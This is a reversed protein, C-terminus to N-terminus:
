SKRHVKIYCDSMISELEFDYYNSFIQIEGNDSDMRITSGDPFELVIVDSCDGSKNGDTVFIRRYGSEHKKRIPKFKISM